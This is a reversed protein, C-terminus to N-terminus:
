PSIFITKDAAVIENESTVLCSKVPNPVVHRRNIRVSTRDQAAGTFGASSNPLKDIKHEGAIILERKSNTM